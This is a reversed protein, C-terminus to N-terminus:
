GIIALNKDLENVLDIESRMLKTSKENQFDDTIYELSAKALNLLTLLEKDTLVYDTPNGTHKVIRM